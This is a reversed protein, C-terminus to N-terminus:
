SACYLLACNPGFSINNIVNMRKAPAGGSGYGSCGVALFLWKKLDTSTEGPFDTEPFVPYLQRWYDDGQRLATRRVDSPQGQCM